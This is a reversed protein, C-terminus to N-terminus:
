FDCWSGRVQKEIECTVVPGIFWIRFSIHEDVNQSNLTM